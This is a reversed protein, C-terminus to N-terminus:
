LNDCDKAWLRSVLVFFGDSLRIIKYYVNNCSEDIRANRTYRMRQLAQVGIVFSYPELMIAFCDTHTLVYRSGWPLFDTM